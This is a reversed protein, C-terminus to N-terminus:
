ATASAKATEQDRQLVATIWTEYQEHNKAIDVVSELVKWSFRKAEQLLVKSGTFATYISMGDKRTIPNISLYYGRAESAGTFFNMGGISYYVEVDISRNPRGTPRSEIKIRRPSRKAM